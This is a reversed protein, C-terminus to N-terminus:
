LACCKAESWRHVLITCRFRFYYEVHLITLFWFILPLFESVWFHIIQLHM